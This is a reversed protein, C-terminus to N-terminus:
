KSKAKKAAKEVKKSATEAAAKADQAIKDKKNAM